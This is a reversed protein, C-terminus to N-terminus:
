GRKEELYRIYEMVKGPSDPSEYSHLLNKDFDIIKKSYFDADFQEINATLQTEDSAFPFPLVELDLYFGRDSNKYVAYDPAYLFCPKGTILYDFFSSSYDTLLIDATALLEQMDPYQSVDAVDPSNFDFFSNYSPSGTMNPHFRVLFVWKGSFKKELAEIIPRIDLRYIDYKGQGRFTPAYLFLRSDPNIGYQKCIKEKLRTTDSFFLANRPMGTELIKGSYWFSDKLTNTHYASGSIALDWLKSERKANEIYREGLADAADKEIKKLATGHWTQVYIQGKRKIFFDTVVGFRQNNILIGSTALVYYYRVSPYVVIHIRKDVTNPIRNKKFVWFIERKNDNALIYDTLARPNCGYNNGFMSIAMVRNRKVRFFVRFLAYPLYYCIFKGINKLIRLAKM